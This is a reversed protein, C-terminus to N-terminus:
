RCYAIHYGVGGAVRCYHVAFGAANSLFIGYSWTNVGNSSQALCKFAFASTSLSAAVTLGVLSAVIFREM